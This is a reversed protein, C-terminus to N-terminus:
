RAVMAVMNTTTPRKRTTARMRETAEACIKVSAKFRSSAELKTGPETSDGKGSDVSSLKRNPLMSEEAIAGSSDYGDLATAVTGNLGSWGLTIMSGAAGIM